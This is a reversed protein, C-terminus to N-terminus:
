SFTCKRGNTNLLINILENVAADLQEKSSQDVDSQSNDSM